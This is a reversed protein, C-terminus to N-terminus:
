VRTLRTFVDELSATQAKLEALKWKNAVTVDFVAETIEDESKGAEATLEYATWAGETEKKVVSLVGQIQSLKETAKGDGKLRVHVVPGSKHQELAEPTDHAVIKGNNIILIRTCTAEVETLNHTSLIVTKTKGIEQILHRIEIIQNPDLGSTPEDLILIPPDTLSAQALGVRQRYGKSLEGIDKTAVELLGYLQLAKDITEKRSKAEIGKIESIFALYEMVTMDEYLPNNEPLYGIKAKVAERNEYIRIGDIEIAGADYGLFGTLMRMTTTKGAGNPGLFGLVEGKAVNFSIDDVAVSTGYRKTLNHVHIM